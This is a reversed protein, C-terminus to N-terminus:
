DGICEPTIAIRQFLKKLNYNDSIFDETAKLLMPQDFSAPERKCVARYVRESMCKPFAKSKSIMEGFEKVGYGKLPGAWGFRVANAGRIAVNEFSDDTIIHGAPYKDENHNMKSAVGAPNQKM